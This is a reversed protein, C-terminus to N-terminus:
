VDQKEGEMPSEEKEVTKGNQKKRVDVWGMFFGCVCALSAFGVLMLWINRLSESYATLVGDVEWPRDPAVLERVAGASSGAALAAQPPVSPAYEGLKTILSQTFVTNAVVLFIAGSINQAFILFAISVPILRLPLVAQAAILAKLITLSMLLLPVFSKGNADRCRSRWGRCDLIWDVEGHEHTSEDNVDVRQRHGHGRRQVCGLSPLIGIEVSNGTLKLYSM